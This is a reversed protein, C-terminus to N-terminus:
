PSMKYATVAFAQGGPTTVTVVIRRAPVGGVAVTAVAAQARFNALAAIANGFQDRVLADPLTNFDLVDDFNQRLGAGPQVPFGKSLVEEMYAKAVAVAQQSALVEASRLSMSSLLAILTSACIGMLTIAVILEILTFGQKGRRKM